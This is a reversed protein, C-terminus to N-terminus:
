ELHPYCTTLIGNNVILPMGPISAATRRPEKRINGLMPLANTHTAVWTAIMFHEELTKEVRQREALVFHCEGAAALKVCVDINSVKLTTHSSPNEM